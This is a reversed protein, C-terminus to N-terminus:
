CLLSVNAFSEFMKIPIEGLPCFWACVDALQPDNGRDPQALHHLQLTHALKPFSRSLVLQWTSAEARLTPMHPCKRGARGSGSAKYKQWQDTPLFCVIFAFLNSLSFCLSERVEACIKQPHNATKLGRVHVKPDVGGNVSLWPLWPMTPFKHEGTSVRRWSPPGTVTRAFVLKRFPFAIMQCHRQHTRFHNSRRKTRRQQRTKQSGYM